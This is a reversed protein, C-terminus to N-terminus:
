CCAANLWVIYSAQVYTVNNSAFPEHISATIIHLGSTTQICVDKHCNLLQM